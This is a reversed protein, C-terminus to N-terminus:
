MEGLLTKLNPMTPVNPPNFDHNDARDRPQKENPDGSPVTENYDGSDGLLDNIEGESLDNNLIEGDSLEDDTWSMTETKM